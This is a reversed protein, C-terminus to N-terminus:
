ESKIWANVVDPNKKCAAIYRWPHSIGKREYIIGDKHEVMVTRPQFQPDM